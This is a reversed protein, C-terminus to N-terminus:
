RNPRILFYYKLITVLGNTVFRSLYSSLNTGFEFSNWIIRRRRFSCFSISWTWARRRFLTRFALVFFRFLSRFRNFLSWSQGFTEGGFESRLQALLLLSRIFAGIRFTGAVIIISRFRHFINQRTRVVFNDCANGLSINSGWVNIIRDFLLGLLPFSLSLRFVFVFKRRCFIQSRCRSSVILFNFRCISAYFGSIGSWGPGTGENFFSKRGRFVFEKVVFFFAFRRVQISSRWLFHRWM